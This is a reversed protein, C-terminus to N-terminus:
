NTTKKKNIAVGTNQMVNTNTTGVAVNGIGATKGDWITAQQKLVNIDVTDRLYFTTTLPVTEKLERIVDVSVGAPILYDFLDYIITIDSLQEPIFLTLCNTDTNYSYDMTDKISEARLLANVATFLAKLSGKNKLIIPLANCIAYLQTYNYNKTAKFGLTDALLNLLIENMNDSNPLGNISDIDTKCSNLVIDYLRGIFQFDRSMQYYVSPTSNELKIM